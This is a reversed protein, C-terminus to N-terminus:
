YSIQKINQPIDNIEQLLSFVNIHNARFYSIMSSKVQYAIWKLNDNDTNLIPLNNYDNYINQINLTRLHHARLLIYFKYWEKESSNFKNYYDLSAVCNDIYIKIDSYNIISLESNFFLYPIHLFDPATKEQLFYKKILDQNLPEYKKISHILSLYTTNFKM